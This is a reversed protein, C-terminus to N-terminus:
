YMRDDTVEEAPTLKEPEQILLEYNDSANIFGLLDTNTIYEPILSLGYMGEASKLRILFVDCLPTVACKVSVESHQHENDNDTTLELTLEFDKEKAILKM